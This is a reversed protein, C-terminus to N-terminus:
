IECLKGKRGRFYSQQKLYLSRNLMLANKMSSLEAHRNVGPGMNKPHADITNHGSGLVKGGKMMIAGHRSCRLSTDHNAANSALFFWKLINSTTMNTSQPSIM